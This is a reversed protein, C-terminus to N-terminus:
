KNYIKHYYYVISDAHEQAIHGYFQRRESDGIVVKELEWIRYRNMYEENWKIRTLWYEQDANILVPDRGQNIYDIRMPYKKEKCGIVFCVFVLLPLYSLKM